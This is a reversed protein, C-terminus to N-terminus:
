AKSMRRVEKVLESVVHSKRTAVVLVPRVLATVLAWGLGPVGPWGDDIEGPRSDAAPLDEISQDAFVRLCRLGFRM